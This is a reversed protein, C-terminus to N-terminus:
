YRNEPSSAGFVSAGYLDNTVGPVVDAVGEFGRAPASKGGPAILPIRSTFDSTINMGFASSGVDVTPTRGVVVVEEARLAEPLLSANLRITTDAHLDLSERTYPRFAQAEVRLTYLGPPLGPIRYVGTEDTVAIEEGQLNPSTVTVLSDSVPKGTSSDSVTGVLVAM